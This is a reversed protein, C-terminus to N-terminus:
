GEPVRYWDAVKRCANGPLDCAASLSKYDYTLELPRQITISETVFLSRKSMKLLDLM